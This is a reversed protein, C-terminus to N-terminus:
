VRDCQVTSVYLADPQPQGAKKSVTGPATVRWSSRDINMVRMSIVQVFQYAELHGKVCVLRAPSPSFSCSFCFM